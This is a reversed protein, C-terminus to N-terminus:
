LSMLAMGALMAVPILGLIMLRRAFRWAIEPLWEPTAISWVLGCVGVAVIAACVEGMGLRVCREVWTRGFPGIVLAYLFVGAFATAGSSLLGLGLRGFFSHPLFNEPISHKQV